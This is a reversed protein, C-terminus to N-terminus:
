RRQKRPTGETNMRLPRGPETDPHGPQTVADTLSPLEQAPRDTYQDVPLGAGAASGM